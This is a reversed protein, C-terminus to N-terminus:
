GRNVGSVLDYNMDDALGTLYGRHRKMQHENSIKIASLMQTGTIDVCVDCIVADIPQASTRSSHRSGHHPPRVEWTGCALRPAGGKYIVREGVGCGAVAVVCMLYLLRTAASMGSRTCSGKRLEFNREGVLHELGM